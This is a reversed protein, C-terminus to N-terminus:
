KDTSNKRENNQFSTNWKYQKVGDRYRKFKREKALIKQNVGELQMKLYTQQKRKTKKDWCTEIRKKKKLEKTQQRLKKVERELRIEWWHKINRNPNKLPIGIKDWVLKAREYTLENLETINSTPINPYLKNVKETEIKVKKWAQKTLSPLSTKKETINKKILEANIKDEQTLM